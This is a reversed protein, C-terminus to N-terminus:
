SIVSKRSQAVTIEPELVRAFQALTGTFNINVDVGQSGFSGGQSGFGGGRGETVAAETASNAASWQSGATQLGNGLLGLFPNGTAMGLGSYIRGLTTGSNGSGGGILSLLRDVAELLATFAEAVSALANAFGLLIPGITRIASAARQGFAEWDVSRVFELAAQALELLAPAMEVAIRNKVAEMQKDLRKFEDDTASLAALQEDSLVYGMARAEEAYTAIGDAGAEIISNLELASKGFIQMTIADRETGDEIYHLSNIIERFVEDADRLKGSGDTIRVNLKAFADQMDDSGSRAQSMSKTLKAISGTITDVDTDILEAMYRYEQLADTAIGYNTSITNIEDGYAMGAKAADTFASVIAKLGAVAAGVVGALTLAQMNIGLAGLVEDFQGGSEAAEDEADGFSDIAETNERLQAEAKNLEATTKNVAQQWKQTREDAEGYARASEELMREQASLKERLTSVTRGLVDNQATLSEVSKENGIFASTVAQMETGLTKLGTNISRLEQRFKDEGQIGIKPGINQPM